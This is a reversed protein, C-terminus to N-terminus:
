KDGLLKMLAKAQPSNLVQRTKEPDSLVANFQRAEESDANKFLGKVDGNKAAADVEDASLGLKESLESILKNINESM